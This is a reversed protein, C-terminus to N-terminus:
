YFFVRKPCIIVLGPRAVIDGVWFPMGYWVCVRQSKVLFSMLVATRGCAMKARPTAREEEEVGERLAVLRRDLIRRISRQDHSWSRQKLM